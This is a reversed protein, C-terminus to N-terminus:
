SGRASCRASTRPRGAASADSRASRSPRRGAARAQERGPSRDHEDLPGGRAPLRRLAALVRPPARDIGPLRRRRRLAVPQRRRLRDLLLFWPRSSRPSCRASCTDDHRCARVARARAALPLGARLRRPPPAPPASMAAAETSYPTSSPSSAACAAASRSACSSSARTPSRTARSTARGAGAFSAAACCCGSISQSTRSRAAPRASCSAWPRRAARAARRPPPDADARRAGPLARRDAGRAGIGPEGALADSDHMGILWIVVICNYVLNTTLRPSRECARSWLPSSARAPVAIRRM